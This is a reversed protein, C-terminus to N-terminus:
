REGEEELIRKLRALDRQNAKRMASALIPAAVSFFGAPEGRNRLRMRTTGADVSEWLYTTEMPFPGASAQMQLVEGPVYTKIEYTYSIRRGLFQAIFAIRSGIALPPESEWAVSRINAYWAPVNDPDAAFAAVRARPADIVVATEVDVPM